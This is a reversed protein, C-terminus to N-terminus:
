IAIVRDIGAVPADRLNGFLFRRGDARRRTRPKPTAGLYISVNVDLKNKGLSDVALSRFNPQDAAMEARFPQNAEQAARRFGSQGRGSLQLEVALFFGAWQLPRQRPWGRRGAEKKLVWLGNCERGPL